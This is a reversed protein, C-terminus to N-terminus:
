SINMDTPMPIFGFVHQSHRLVTVSGSVLLEERIRYPFNVVM